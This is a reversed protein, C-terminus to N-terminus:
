RIPGPLAVSRLTTGALTRTPRLGSVLTVASRQEILALDILDDLALGCRQALTTLRHLPVILRLPMLDKFDGHNFGPDIFIPEVAPAALAAALRM